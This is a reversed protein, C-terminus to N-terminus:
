KHKSVYQAAIRELIAVLRAPTFYHELAKQTKLYLKLSGPVSIVPLLTAKMVENWPLPVALLMNKMKAESPIRQGAFRDRLISSLKEQAAALGFKGLLWLLIYIAFLALIVPYRTQVLEWLKGFINALDSM